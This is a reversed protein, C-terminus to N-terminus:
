AGSGPGSAAQRATRTRGNAPNGHQRKHSTDPYLVHWSRSVGNPPKGGEGGGAGGSGGAMGGAGEWGGDGGWSGDGGEGGGGGGHGGCIGGGGLAGGGGAYGGMFQPKVGSSTQAPTPSVHTKSGPQGPRTPHAAPPSVYQRNQPKPLKM